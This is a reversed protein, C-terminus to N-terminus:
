ITKQIPCERCLSYKSPQEVLEYFEPIVKKKGWGYGVASLNFLISLSMLNCLIACDFLKFLCLKVSILNAISNNFQVSDM